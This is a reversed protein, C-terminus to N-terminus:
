TEGHLRQRLKITELSDLMDVGEYRLRLDYYYFGYALFLIPGTVLEILTEWMSILVQWYLPLGPIHGGLRIADLSGLVSIPLWLPIALLNITLATFLGCGITRLFRKSSLSFGRSLITTPSGDECALVSLSLLFAIVMFVVSVFFGLFGFLMALAALVPIAKSLVGGAIIELTWLMCIALFVVVGLGFMGVIAFKRRRMYAIADPLTEAFGNALRVFALIKQLLFWKGIVIIIFGVFVLLTAPFAMKTQQILAASAQYTVRGVLICITPWLLMPAWQRLNARYVRIARGVLDGTTQPTLILEDPLALEGVGMRASEKVSKLACLRINSDWNCGGGQSFKILLSAVKRDRTLTSSQKPIFILSVLPYEKYANIM